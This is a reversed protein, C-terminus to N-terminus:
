YIGLLNAVFLHTCKRFSNTSESPPKLPPVFRRFYFFVFLLHYKAIADDAADLQLLGLGSSRPYALGGFHLCCVTPLDSARCEQTNPLMSISGQQISERIAPPQCRPKSKNKFAKKEAAISAFSSNRPVM